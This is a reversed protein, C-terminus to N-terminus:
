PPGNFKYFLDLGIRFIIFVFWFPYFFEPVIGPLFKGSVLKKFYLSVFMCGLLLVKLFPLTKPFSSNGLNRVKAIFVRLVWCYLLHRYHSVACYLHCYFHLLCSFLFDLRYKKCCHPVSAVTTPLGAM